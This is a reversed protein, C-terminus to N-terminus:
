KFPNTAQLKEVAQQDTESLRSLPVNIERGDKRRLQVKGDTVGLYMAEVQFTGTDDTWIRYESRSPAPSAVAATAAPQASPANALAPQDVEDPPLRLDARSFTGQRLGWGRFNVKVKGDPLVDRVEVAYWGSFDRACLILGVPLPTDGAVLKDTPEVRQPGMFAENLKAKRELHPAWKNLAAQAARRIFVNDDKSASAIAAVLEPDDDTDNKAAIKELAHKVRFHEGSRIDNILSKKQAATLPIAAEIRAKEEAKARAEAAARAMEERKLREQEQIQKWEEEPFRRCKITIPFKVSVNDTSITMKQQFDLKEPVGLTRHFTWQGSGVIELTAEDGLKMRFQKDIMVLDGQSQAIKFACSISGAAYKEREAPTSEFRSYLSRFRNPEERGKSTVLVGGEETWNPEDGDPFRELILLSLNGLLWPLQSNGELSQVLGQPNM